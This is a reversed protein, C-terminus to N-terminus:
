TPLTQTSNLMDKILDFEQLPCQIGASAHSVDPQGVEHLEQSIHSGIAALKKSDPTVKNKSVIFGGYAVLQGIWFKTDSATITHDRCGGLILCILTKGSVLLRLKPLSTTYILYGCM